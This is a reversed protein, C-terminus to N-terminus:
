LYWWSVSFSRFTFYMKGVIDLCVTYNEIKLMYVEHVIYMFISIYIIYIIYLLPCSKTLSPTQSSTLKHSLSNTVSHTKSHTLKNTFSITLSHCIALLDGGSFLIYFQSICFFVPGTSYTQTFSPNSSAPLTSSGLSRRNWSRGTM